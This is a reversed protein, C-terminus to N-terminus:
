AGRKSWRANAASRAQASVAGATDGAGDDPLKLSAILTKVMGRHQRIEGLLPNPVQQGQSGMVLMEGMNLEAQMSDVLQMEFCADALIRLEDARMVYKSTVDAWLKVASGALGDPAPKQSSM